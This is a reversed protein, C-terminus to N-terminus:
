IKQYDKKRYKDQNRQALEVKCEPCRSKSRLTPTNCDPCFSDATKRIKKEYLAIRAIIPARNGPISSEQDDNWQTQNEPEIILQEIKM